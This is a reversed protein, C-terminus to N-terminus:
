KKAKSGKPRGPKKKETKEEKPKLNDVITKNTSEIMDLTKAIHQKLFEIDARMQDLQSQLAEDAETIDVGFQKRIEDTMPISAEKCLKEVAELKSNCMGNGHVEKGFADNYAWVYHQQVMKIKTM